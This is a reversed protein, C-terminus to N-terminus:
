PSPRLDPSSSEMSGGPGEISLSVDETRLGTNVLKVELSLEKGEAIVVAPYDTYFNLGRQAAVAPVFTLLGLGVTTLLCLPKSLPSFVGCSPGM